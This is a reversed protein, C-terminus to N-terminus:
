NMSAHYGTCTFCRSLAPRRVDIRELRHHLALLPVLTEEHRESVRAIGKASNLPMRLRASHDHRKSVTFSIRSSCIAIFNTHSVRELERVLVQQRIGGSTLQVSM